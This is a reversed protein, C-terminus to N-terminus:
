VDGGFTVGLREGWALGPVTGARPKYECGIFGRYGLRDIAEFLSRYDLEGRDPEGRDPPNALQMHRILPLFEEIGRIVDGRVMQRHYIDFQLGLNKAGVEHIASRADECTELFYGPVDRRNIPEIVVGLDAAAARQAARTLSAVYTRREAGHHLLGAMVHIQPVGLALAYGIAQELAADFEAERGPLGALGRDGKAWDGPPANILVMRLRAADLRAKIAEAPAEYPFLVEVARFGSAAAAEFRDLLPLETFLWSLNAAFRPM